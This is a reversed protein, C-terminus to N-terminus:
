TANLLPSHSHLYSIAKNASKQAHKKTNAETDVVYSDKLKNSNFHVETHTQIFQSPMLTPIGVENMIAWAITWARVVNGTDYGGGGLALWKIGTSKFFNVAESFGNATLYLHTLPDSAFTDVGLQTVIIDPHFKELAAPVLNFFAELFVDDDTGPWLPVNLSYGYGHGEGL